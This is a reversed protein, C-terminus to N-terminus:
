QRVTPEEDLIDTIEDKVEHYVDVLIALVHKISSMNAALSRSPPPKGQISADQWAMRELAYSAHAPSYGFPAAHSLPAGM